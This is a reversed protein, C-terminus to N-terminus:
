SFTVRSGIWISGRVTITGAAATAAAATVKMALYKGSVDSKFRFGTDADIEDTAGTRGVTSASIYTDVDSTGDHTVLSFSLTPTAHADLATTTMTLSEIYIEGLDAPFKFILLRDGIDDIAATPVTVAGSSFVFHGHPKTSKAFESAAKRKTISSTTESGYGALTSTTIAAAM